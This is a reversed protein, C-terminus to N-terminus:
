NIQSHNLKFETIYRFAPPRYPYPFPLRTLCLLIQKSSPLLRRSWFAPTWIDFYVADSRALYSRHRWRRSFEFRVVQGREFKNKCITVKWWCIRRLNLSSVVFTSCSSCLKTRHQFKSMDSLLDSIGSFTKFTTGSSPSSVYSWDHSYYLM